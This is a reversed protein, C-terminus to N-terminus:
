EQLTVPAREHEKNVGSFQNRSDFRTDIKFAFSETVAGGNSNCPVLIEFKIAETNVSMDLM